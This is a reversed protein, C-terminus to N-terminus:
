CRHVSEFANDVIILSRRMHRLSQLTEDFAIQCEAETILGFGIGCDEAVVIRPALPVLVAIGQDGSGAIRAQRRFTPEGAVDPTQESGSVATADSLM